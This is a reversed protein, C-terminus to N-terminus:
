FCDLRRGFRRPSWLRRWLLKSTYSSRMFASLPTTDSQLYDTVVAIYRLKPEREAIADLTSVGM